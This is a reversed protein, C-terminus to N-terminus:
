KKSKLSPFASFDSTKQHLLANSTFQHEFKSSATTVGFTAYKSAQSNKRRHSLVANDEEDELTQIIDLEPKYKKSSSEYEM